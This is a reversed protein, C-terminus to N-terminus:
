FSMLTDLEGDWPLSWTTKLYPPIENPFAQANIHLREPNRVQGQNEM